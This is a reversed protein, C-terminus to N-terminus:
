RIRFTRVEFPRITLTFANGEHTLEGEFPEEMLNNETVSNVKEPLIVTVDGRRGEAEYMRLIVGGGDQAQKVADVIVNPASVSLFAKEGGEGAGDTECYGELPLNLRFAESVTDADRWTGAHPYLAYTFSNLGLDGKPDPCVPGRMLTIRMVNGTLDYGYKCDNLLSVGWGGESLDTWKHACCEFMAKEFSNNAYTPREIAGHAIEFTSYRARVNVPFEAKLVKEREHWDVETAFDLTRCGAKLSIKQTVTSENFKRVM